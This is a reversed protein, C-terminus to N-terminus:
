NRLTEITTQFTIKWFLPLKLPVQSVVDFGLDFTTETAGDKSCLVQNSNTQPLYLNQKM